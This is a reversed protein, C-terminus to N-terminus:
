KRTSRQAETRHSISAIETSRHACQSEYHQRMADYFKATHTHVSTFKTINSGATVV